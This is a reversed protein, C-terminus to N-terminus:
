SLQELANRCPHAYFALSPPSGKIINSLSIEKSKAGLFPLCGAVMEYLVVGLSWLRHSRRSAAQTKSPSM